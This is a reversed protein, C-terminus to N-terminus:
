EKKQEGQANACCEFYALISGYLLGPGLNFFNCDVISTLILAGIIFFAMTKEFNPKKLWLWLTQGRHFLYAVFALIGGSAILQFYTDHARPPTFTSPYFSFGSTNQFGVGLFPSSLFNDWCGRYLNFRDSDDFGSKAFASFLAEFRERFCFFGIVVGLLLAGFVVANLIRNKGKAKILVAVVCAAFVVAGFLISGRSQSFAVGLMFICGLLAFAWGWKENKAAFYFPAPVCMAMICGVNNYVGWGTGLAGRNVTWIGNELTLAGEHTYMGGIEALMGFGIAMFVVFIYDKRVKEWDVSFYFYFYFVCLSAIQAFAYPFDKAFVYKETGVGGLLYAVGLALFGLSLAPVRRKPHENLFIILRGALLIVAVALIFILQILNAPNAFASTEPYKGPNNEFAFTMYGCCAIPLICLADECLLLGVGGLVLYIYYVPLELAFVESVAMLAAILFPYVASRYFARVIRTFSSKELQPFVATLM